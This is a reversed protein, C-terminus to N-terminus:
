IGCKIVDLDSTGRPESHTTRKEDSKCAPALGIYQSPTKALVNMSGCVDVRQVRDAVKDRKQHLTGSQCDKREIPSLVAPSPAARCLMQCPKTVTHVNTRSVEVFSSTQPSPRRAHSAESAGGATSIQSLPSCFWSPDPIGGPDKSDETAVQRPLARELGPTSDSTTM